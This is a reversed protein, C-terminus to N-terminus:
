PTTLGEYAGYDWERLDDDIVAADQL